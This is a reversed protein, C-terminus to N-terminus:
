GRRAHRAKKAQRCAQCRKPPQFGQAWYLAQEAATWVFDQGCDVCTLLQEEFDARTSM